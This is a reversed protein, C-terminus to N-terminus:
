TQTRMKESPSAASIARGRGAPKKTRKDDRLGLRVIVIKNRQLILFFCAFHM